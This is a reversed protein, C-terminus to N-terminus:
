VRALKEVARESLPSNSGGPWKSPSGACAMPQEFGREILHQLANDVTRIM